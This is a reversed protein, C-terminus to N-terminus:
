GDIPVVDGWGDVIASPAIKARVTVLHTRFRDYRGTEHQLQGAVLGPHVGLTRSFGILDRESFFPAKKSVFKKLSERPVSFESAAANAVREEESVSVSASNEGNLDSDMIIQLRGHGQMVHEIEHRLVFWFNDIRDFRITMAIVPSD